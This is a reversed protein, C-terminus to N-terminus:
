RCPGGSQAREGAVQDVRSAQWPSTLVNCADTPGRSPRHAGGGRRRSRAGAVAQGARAPGAGAGRRLHGERCPPQQGPRAGTLPRCPGSAGDRAAPRSVLRPGLESVSGAGLLRMCTATEAELVADSDAPALPTRRRARRRSEFVREVGAQGGAGLGFLPARGFGVAKAGLCMAKVVDTGRGIGGDVWVEVRDFVDLCYKRMELLTHVAPPATDAARGGHNSLVVARVRPALQAALM